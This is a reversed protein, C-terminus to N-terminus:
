VVPPEVQVALRWELELIQNNIAEVLFSNSPPDFLLRVKLYIYSKIAEVNTVAGLFDSWKEEIGSISYGELPGVGLQNLSM